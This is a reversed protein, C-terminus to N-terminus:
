AEESTWALTVAWGYKEMGGELRDKAENFWRNTWGGKLDDALVIAHKISLEPEIGALERAVRACVDRAIAEADIAILADLSAEAHSQVCPVPVLPKDEGGSRGLCYELVRGGRLPIYYLGGETALLPVHEIKM